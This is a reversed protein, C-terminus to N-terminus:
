KNSLNSLDVDILDLRTKQELNLEYVDYPMDSSMIYKRIDKSNTELFKLYTRLMYLEPMIKFAQLQKNFRESEAEAIMIRDNKYTNAQAIISLKQAEATPIIKTKYAQAALIVAEKQEKAGFVKQYAPGVDKIPPHADHLNVAVIEIGLNLDDAAKQILKQLDITAKHRESAMFNQMSVSALYKITEQEGINKLIKAPDEFNLAYDMLKSKKIRYNVPMSIGIFSVATATTDHTPTADELVNDHQHKETAVLYRSEKNYHENTWLVLEAKVAKGDQTHM